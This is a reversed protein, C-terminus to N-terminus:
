HGITEYLNTHLGDKLMFNVMDEPVFDHMHEQWLKTIAADTMGSADEAGMTDEWIDNLM